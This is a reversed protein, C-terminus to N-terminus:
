KAFWQTIYYAGKSQNYVIGIGVRTYNGLINARHGPSNMFGVEAAEVSGYMAINEGAASYKVGSAKLRTSFDGQTPSTHSFYNNESMDESHALAAARLSADFTLAPLGNDARDQNVLGIMKREDASMSGTVPPVTTTDGSGYTPAPTPAPTSTPAPAATGTTSCNGSPCSNSTGNVNIGYKELLQQLTSSSPCTGNTCGTLKGSKLMQQLAAASPCSGSATLNSGYSGLIQSITDTTPCTGSACSGALLDSLSCTAPAAFARTMLLMAIVTTAMLTVLMMRKTKRMTGEKWKSLKVSRRMKLECSAMSEFHFITIM